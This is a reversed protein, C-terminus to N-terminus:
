ETFGLMTATIDDIYSIVGTEANVLVGLLYEKGLMEKGSVYASYFYEKTVNDVMLHFETVEVSYSKCKLEEQMYGQISQMVEDATKLNEPVNEKEADLLVVAQLASIPEYEYAPAEEYDFWTLVGFIAFVVVWSISFVKIGKWSICKGFRRLAYDLVEIFMFSIIGLISLEVNFMIGYILMTPLLVTVSFREVITMDKSKNYVFFGAYLGMVGCLHLLYLYLGEGWAGGILYLYAGILLFGGITVSTYVLGQLITQILLSNVRSIGGAKLTKM